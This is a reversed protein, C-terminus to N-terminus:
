HALEEQFPNSIILTEERGPGTSLLIIPIGLFQEIFKIYNQLEHPLDALTHMLSSEYVGWGSMVEYVPEVQSLDSASAPFHYITNGHLRYSTCIKIIDINQLVDSKTLALSSIGNMDVAYKLAVLDLWGIRRARGTTAGWEEGVQRIQAALEASEQEMETPFPGLGVRTTYAKTVGVVQVPYKLGVGSGTFAAAASTHSATVFPYTGHDLDLLAGQAGEFLVPKQHKLAELLIERVDAMFPRLREGWQLCDQYLPEFEMAVTQFYHQFLSNKEALVRQLQLALAEPELLDICRIGYRSAKDEYAPGIGKQTTGINTHTKAAQNERLQDLRQHYPLILHARESIRIQEQPVASLVKLSQLHELEKFFASPDFVVGNAILCIKDGHLIGSPIMHLVIKSDNVVLTHGANNGGQYRVIYEAQSGYFDIVKGKGEDGWQAGIVIVNM